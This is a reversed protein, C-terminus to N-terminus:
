CMSSIVYDLQGAFVDDLDLEHENGRDNKEDGILSICGQANMKIALIVVDCPEDYNYAAIIPCEEEFHYEYGDDVKIGIKIMMDALEEREKRKVEQVSDYIPYNNLRGRCISHIEKGNTNSIEYEHFIVPVYDSIECPVEMWSINSIDFERECLFMEIDEPYNCDPVNLLEIRADVHNLLVIKMIM